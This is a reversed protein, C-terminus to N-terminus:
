TLTAPATHSACGSTSPRSIAAMASTPPSFYGKRLAQQIEQVMRQHYDRRLRVPGPRGRLPAPVRGCTVAGMDSAVRRHAAPQSRNRHRFCLVVAHVSCMAHRRWRSWACEPVTCSWSYVPHAPPIKLVGGRLVPDFEPGGILATLVELRDRRTRADQRPLPSPAM